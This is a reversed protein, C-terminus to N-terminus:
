LTIMEQFVLRKVLEKSILTGNFLSCHGKLEDYKIQNKHYIIEDDQFEGFTLNEEDCQVLSNIM